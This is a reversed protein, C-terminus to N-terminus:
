IKGSERAVPELGANFPNSLRSHKQWRLLKILHARIAMM